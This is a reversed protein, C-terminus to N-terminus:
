SGGTNECRQSCGEVLAILDLQAQKEELSNDQM